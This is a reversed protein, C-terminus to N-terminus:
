RADPDPQRGFCDIIDVCQWGEGTLIVTAATSHCFRCSADTTSEIPITFEM